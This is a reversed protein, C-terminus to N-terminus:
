NPRAGGQSLMQWLPGLHSQGEELTCLAGFNGMNDVNQIAEHLGLLPEKQPVLVTEQRSDHYGRQHLYGDWESSSTSQTTISVSGVLSDSTLMGETGLIRTKRSKLPSDWSILSQFPITGDLLGSLSVTTADALHGSALKTLARTDEVTKGFLWQILDLDHSGLDLLVGVDTIRKPNPGIRETEISIPSGIRNEAILSKLLSNVGNFREVFGTFAQTSNDRFALVLEKAQEANMAIPKEVLATIGASALELGLEHHTKTPTAVVVYDPVSQTLSSLSGVRVSKSGSWVRESDNDLCIIKEVSDMGALVRAHSQGMSGLGIVGVRFTKM